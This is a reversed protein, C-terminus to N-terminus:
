LDIFRKMLNKPLEAELLAKVIRDAVGPEGFPHKGNTIIPLSKLTKLISAKDLKCDLVSECKIRGSQRQGINVTVTGLIPAELIGSSSNGIVADAFKLLSLYRRQGLSDFLKINIGPNQQIFEQIAENIAVGEADANAMTWVVSGPKSEKVADIIEKIHGVAQGPFYTEPHFTGVYLPRDLKMGLSSELEPFSMPKLRAISDVALAGTTFVRSPDEGLQLVRQRYEEAATFHWWAMKTMSHRFAEDIAGFTLEGGHIHAVPISQVLAAATIAFTEYRDGLVVIIHPRLQIFADGIGDFIRGMARTVEGSEEDESLIPLRYTINFGDAEIESVTSGFKKSLHSGTVLIQLEADSSAALAEMVSKLLGYEARTGTVVCIRRKM